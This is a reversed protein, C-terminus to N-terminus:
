LMLNSPYITSCTVRAKSFLPLYYEIGAPAVGEKLDAYLGCSRPNIDFRELLSERARKCSESDLPFERAPLLKFQQQATDSRQTEPDFQRLSDIQDDMLEIRIPFKAGSPFFWGYAASSPSRRFQWAHPGAPDGIILLVVVM